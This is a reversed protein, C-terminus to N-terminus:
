EVALWNEVLILLDLLDVAGDGESPAIDASPRESVGLWQASLTAFDALDVQGDQTIDAPNYQRVFEMFNLMATFSNLTFRLTQGPGGPLYVDSVETSAWKNWGGTSPLTVTAVTQGNLSLVGQQAGYTSASRVIITYIGAQIDCTYDLWEGAEAYVAYGTGSDNVAMIDVAEDPRYQQYGNTDTRDYYSIWQGGIDYDEFEIRGPIAHPSAGYPMRSTFHFWDLQFGTGSFEVTLIANEREPLPLCPTSIIQWNTLSGTNPVDLTAILEDDLRFRIQGGAQASAVRAFVNTQAATSTVTYKLWEGTQIDGVAYGAGGDTISFIDVDENTRFAGGSNSLTFDFYSIGSSGSDFHEAEIRGPIPYPEGGFPGELTMLYLAMVADQNLAYYYIRFDDLAGDLYPDAFQSRGLYNKTTVSLSAPDLTMNSNTGVLTGNLYMRGTKGSLTIAVHTWTNVSLATSSNIVQEGISPTRIAFRPLGTTGGAQPCLFMYNDAGTGFDFIRAWDAFSTVQIWAAITFDNLGSVVGDPFMGYQSSSSVLSVANGYVGSVWSPGNYLMADWGNGSSDAATSGSVEDFKLYTTLVGTVAVTENSDNSEGHANCATVIYYYTTDGSVTMDIYTKETIGTAITTYPGGSITARKINYSLANLSSWNLIVKPGFGAGRLETPAVPPVSMLIASIEEPILGRNYLRFDDMLGKYLPDPWQSKGFYNQTLNLHTPNNSFLVSKQAAGNIYITAWNGVFTVAVHSWQELPLTASTLVGQAVDNQRLECIVRGDVLAMMMYNDTGSGFDFIRQWNATSDPQVWVSVTFDRYNVGSLQSIAAFTTSGNFVLAKNDVGAAYTETGFITASPGGQSDAASGDFRFHKQLGAALDVVPTFSGPISISVQSSADGPGASNVARVRYYYITNGVVNRDTYNTTELYAVTFFPGDSTTSRQLRYSTAGAAATWNLSVGISGVSATLGTPAPPPSDTVGTADTAHIWSNVSTYHNLAFGGHTGSNIGVGDSNQILIDHWSCDRIYVEEVVINRADSVTFFGRGCEIARLYQVRIDACGNAFRLGAYGGGYSCRYADVTGVFGNITKNLLVGCEGNNRAVIGDVYCGDIGYTELGHSLLNEFRCNTVTLNYNWFEWPRSVHSDVRIGIYGSLITIGSLNVNNCGTLRIVMYTGNVITMDHIGINSVGKCYIVYSEDHSRTYTNGHCVLSVDPPLGITASLDGGTLVHIERVGSSEWICRNIASALDTASDQYINNIKWHYRGGDEWVENEYAQASAVALLM